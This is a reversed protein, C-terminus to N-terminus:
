RADRGPADGELELEREARALEEQLEDVTEVPGKRRRGQGWRSEAVLLFTIPTLDV